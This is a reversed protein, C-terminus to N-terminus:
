DISPIALAINTLTVVPLAWCNPPESFGLSPVKDSDFDKVGTFSLSSDVKELLEILNKPKQKEGINIWHATADDNNKMMLDVLEDEGDLHIVFSNLNTDPSHQSGVESDNNSISNQGKIFRKFDLFRGVLAISTFRITQCSLVIGQQVIILLRFIHYKDNQSSSKGQWPRGGFTKLRVAKNAVYTAEKDLVKGCRDIGVAITQSILVMTTSWRYDSEGKCFKLSWPMLYARLIAEVLIFTNLLCFAGSATCPALRGIVFQPGSSYALIWYKELDVRLGEAVSLHKKISCEINTLKLKEGYKIDVYYKTTPIALSLSCAIALLILMLLMIFAHQIWFVFIVGTSMQICINVVATIVLIALTKSASRSPSAHHCDLGYLLSNALSGSSKTDQSMRGSGGNSGRKQPPTPSKLSYNVIKTRSQHVEVGINKVLSAYSNHLTCYISGGPTENQEYLTARPTKMCDTVEEIVANPNAFEQLVDETDSELENDKEFVQKNLDMNEVAEMFNNLQNENMNMDQKNLDMNEDM